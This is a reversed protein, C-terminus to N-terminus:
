LRSVYALSISVAENLQRGQEYGVKFGEVVAAAREAPTGHHAPHNVQNDGASHQTVAFVAAPYDRKELKRRGAYYGALFDANLEVRKITSQGARLHPILGRKFQLVHGYEHACVSTVAVDPHDNGAMLRRLLRVGLLVTGDAKQMRVAPSAFANLGDHDDYYAFGPLVQLTATLRALTQALAYDFTANGSRPIIPEQGTRYTRTETKNDYYASLEGATLICGDRGQHTRSQACAPKPCTGWVLVLGGGLVVERRLIM